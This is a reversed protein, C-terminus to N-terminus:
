QVVLEVRRNLARGTEETNSAVPSLSAVAKAMMRDASIGSAVLSKVVADARQQSLTLNDAFTGVNDTHGVIYVKLDKNQQLLKTMEGLAPASEPKVDSKATDFYIGYVAVKGTTTLSQNMEDVSLVKVQGTQMPQLETVQVYALTRLNSDDKMVYIMVYVDGSPQERKVLLYRNAPNFSTGMFAPPIVKGGNVLYAGLDLGDSNGCPEGACSFLTQFGATTLATEYNRMVELPTKKVDILYGLRTVKGEVKVLDADTLNDRDAIRRTPMLSEDFDIQKYSTLEAGAFRTVLPHDKGGAIDKASVPQVISLVLLCILIALLRYSTRQM